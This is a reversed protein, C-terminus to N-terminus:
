QKKSEEILKKTLEEDDDGAKPESAIAPPNISKQRVFDYDMQKEMEFVFNELGTNSDNEEYFITEIGFREKLEIAKVKAREKEEINKIRLILFHMDFGYTHLDKSVFDLMQLFYPDTLSFGIFILRRTAFLSWMLKRHITWELGYDKLIVAFEIEDLANQQIAEFITKAPQLLKFGYKAEYESKSLIISDKRDLYGHLHLIGRRDHGSNLSMLYEVIRAQEMNSEICIPIVQEKTVANMADELVSDYNTTTIGKLKKNYVLRCLAEHFKEHTKEGEKFSRFILNYYQDQGICIKVRDAFDLFNEAQDLPIFSNDIKIAEQQLLNVFGQWDPYISASSGAGAMLIGDGSHLLAYFRKKRRENDRLEQEDFLPQSQIL